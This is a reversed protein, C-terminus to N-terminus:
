GMFSPPLVLSYSLRAQLTTSYQKRLRDNQKQLGELALGGDAFRSGISRLPDPQKPRHADQLEEQLRTVQMVPVPEGYIDYLNKKRVLAICRVEAALREAESEHGRASESAQELLRHLRSVEAMVNTSEPRSETSDQIDAESTEKGAANSGRRNGTSTHSSLRDAVLRQARLAANERRLAALQLQLVPDVQQHQVAAAGQRERLMANEARLEAVEQKLAGLEAATGRHPAPGAPRRRLDENERQLADLQAHLQAVRRMADQSALQAIQEASFEQAAADLSGDRGCLATM